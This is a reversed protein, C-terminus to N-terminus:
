KNCTADSAGSFSHSGHPLSQLGWTIWHCLPPPELDTRWTLWVQSVVCWKLVGLMASLCKGNVFLLREEDRCHLLVLVSCLLCGPFCLWWHLSKLGKYFPFHIVSKLSLTKFLYYFCFSHTWINLWSPQHLHDRFPEEMHFRTGIVGSPACKIFSLLLEESEKCNVLSYRKDAEMRGFRKRSVLQCCQLLQRRREKWSRANTALLTKTAWIIWAMQWCNRWGATGDALREAESDLGYQRHATESPEKVLLSLPPSCALVRQNWSSKTIM